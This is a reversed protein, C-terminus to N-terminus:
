IYRHAYLDFIYISYVAGPRQPLFSCLCVTLHSHLPSMLSVEHHLSLLSARFALSRPEIGVRLVINGMKMAGVDSNVMVHIRYLSHMNIHGSFRDETYIAMAHMYTITLMILCVIGLPPTYYHASVESTLLQMSLYAYHHCITYRYCM